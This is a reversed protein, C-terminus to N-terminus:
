FCPGSLSEEEFIMKRIEPTFVGVWIAIIAIAIGISWQFLSNKYFPKKIMM